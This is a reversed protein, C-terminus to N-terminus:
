LCKQMTKELVDAPMDGAKVGLNINNKIDRASFKSVFNVSPMMESIMRVLVM